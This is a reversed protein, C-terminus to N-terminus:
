KEANNTQDAMKELIQTTKSSNQATEALSDLKIKEVSVYGLGAFVRHSFLSVAFIIMAVILGAAASNGLLSGGIFYGIIAWLLSFVIGSIWALVPIFSILAPFALSIVLGVLLAGIFGVSTNMLAVIFGVIGLIISEAKVLKHGTRSSVFGERLDQLNDYYGM